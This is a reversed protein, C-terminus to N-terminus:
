RAHEDFIRSQFIWLYIISSDDFIGYAFYPIFLLRPALARSLFLVPSLFRTHFHIPVWWHPCRDASGSPSTWAAGLRSPVPSSPSPAALPPPATAPSPLPVLAPFLHWGASSAPDPSAAPPAAVSPTPGRSPPIADLSENSFGGCVGECSGQFVFNWKTSIQAPCEFQSYLTWCRSTFKVKWGGVFVWFRFCQFNKEFLSANGTDFFGKLDLPSKLIDGELGSAIRFKNRLLQYLWFTVGTQAPISSYPDLHLAAVVAWAFVLQFNRAIIM